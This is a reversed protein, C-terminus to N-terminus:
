EPSNKRRLKKGKCRKRTKKAQVHVHVHIREKRNLIFAHSFRLFESPIYRDPFNRHYLGRLRATLKQEGHLIRGINYTIQSKYVLPM